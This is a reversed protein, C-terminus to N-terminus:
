REGTTKPTTRVAAAQEVATFRDSTPPAVDEDVPPAPALPEAVDVETEAGDPDLADDDVVADVVDDDVDDV